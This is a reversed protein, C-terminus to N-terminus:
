PLSQVHYEQTHIYVDVVARPLSIIPAAPAALPSSYNVNLRQRSISTLVERSYPSMKILYVCRTM